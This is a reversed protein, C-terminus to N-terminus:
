DNRFPRKLLDILLACVLMVIGGIAAVYHPWVPAPPPLTTVIFVPVPWADWANMGVYTALALMAAGLLGIELAQWQRNSLSGM